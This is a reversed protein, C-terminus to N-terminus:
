RAGNGGAGNGSAALEAITRDVFQRASEPQALEREIVRSALELSLNALEARLQQRVRDAEGAVDARARNVIDQAEAEAKKTLDAKLSEATRKSEEIIKQAEGRAEDLQKRYQELMRDAETKSKEASELGERIKNSREQLMQNLKPFAVKALALFLILFAISGWVLEDTHPKVFRPVGSEEAALILAALM